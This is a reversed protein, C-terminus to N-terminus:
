MHDHWYEILPKLEFNILDIYIEHDNNELSTVLLQLKEKYEELDLFSYEDKLIVVVEAVANLDEILYLVREIEFNNSTQYAEYLSNIRTLINVLLEKSTKIIENYEVM